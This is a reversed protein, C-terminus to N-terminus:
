TSFCRRRRRASLAMARPPSPSRSLATGRPDGAVSDRSRGGRCVKPDRNRLPYLGATLLGYASMIGAYAPVLITSIDLEDAVRAAHLPGAGGYAMLVFDRTDIGRQTTIMQIARVINSDAIRIAADALELVSMGLTMALPEFSRRAAEVDPSFSGGFRTDAPITGRVVHADTITPRTGGRSYCAPGPDAGASEPGVRLMGGADLWVLSGGGAGTTNIDIVPTRVPLGDIMTGGSVGAEGGDIVSIDTSTGGIDLTIIRDRGLLRGM